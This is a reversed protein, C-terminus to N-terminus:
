VLASAGSKRLVYAGEEGKFRTNVPVLIAGAGQIGLAALIWRLGNPAWVAVRDGPAIGIALMSRVCAVMAEHLQTFSLRDTGDVVADRDGFREASVRVANPISILDSDYRIRLEDPVYDWKVPPCGPQGDASGAM